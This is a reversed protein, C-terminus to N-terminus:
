GGQGHWAGMKKSFKMVYNPMELEGDDCRLTARERNGPITLGIGIGEPTLIKRSKNALCRGIWYLLYHREKASLQGLEDIRIEKRSLYQKLMSM